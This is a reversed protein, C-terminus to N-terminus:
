AGGVVAQKYCNQYITARTCSKQRLPAGLAKVCVPPETDQGLACSALLRVSLELEQAVTENNPLQYCHCHHQQSAYCGHNVGM